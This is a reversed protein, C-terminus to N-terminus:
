TGSEKTDARRRSRPEALGGGEGYIDDVGALELDEFGDVLEAQGPQQPGTGVEALIEPTIVPEGKDDLEDQYAPEEGPLLETEAPLLEFDVPAALRGPLPAATPDAADDELAHRHRELRERAERQHRQREPAAEEDEDESGDHVLRSLRVKAHVPELHSDIRLEGQDLDLREGASGDPQVVLVVPRTSAPRSVVVATRGDSLRVLSGLPWRGLFAAFAGGLQRGVWAPQGAALAKSVVVPARPRTKDHGGVLMSWAELMALCRGALGAEKGTRAQVSDHLVLAVPMALEGLGSFRLLARVPREAEKGSALGGLVGALGLPVLEHAPLGLWQGFGVLQIAVLVRRNARSPPPSPDRLAALLQFVGLNGPLHDVLLQLARRLPVLSPTEGAEVRAYLQETLDLLSAYLWVALRDPALRYAAVADGEVWRTRIEDTGTEVLRSGQGRTHVALAEVFGLLDERSMAPRFELENIGLPELREHLATIREYLAPDAKLLRENTFVQDSMVTLRLGDSSTALWPALGQHFEDVIRAIAANNPDYLRLARVLSYVGSLVVQGIRHLETLEQDALGAPPPAGSM